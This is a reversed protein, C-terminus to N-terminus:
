ANEEGETVVDPEGVFRGYLRYRVQDTVIGSEAVIRDAGRDPDLAPNWNTGTFQTHEDVYDPYPGKVYIPSALTYGEQACLAQFGQGLDYLATQLPGHELPLNDAREGDFKHLYAFKGPGIHTRHLVCRQKPHAREFCLARSYPM